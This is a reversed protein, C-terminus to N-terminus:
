PREEKTESDSRHELEFPFRSGVRANYFSGKPWALCLATNEDVIEIRQRAGWGLELHVDKQLSGVAVGVVDTRVAVAKLGENPAGVKMAMHGVGWIHETNNKADFYHVACGSGAFCCTGCHSFRDSSGISGGKRGVATVM